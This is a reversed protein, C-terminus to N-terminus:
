SGEPATHCILTSGEPKRLFVLAEVGSSYYRAFRTQFAPPKANPACRLADIQRNREALRPLDKPMAAFASIDFTKGHAQNPLEAETMSYMLPRLFDASVKRGM